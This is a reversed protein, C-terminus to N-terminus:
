RARHLHRGIPVAAGGLIYATDAMATCMTFGRAMATCDCVIYATGAPGAIGDRRSVIVRLNHVTVGGRSSAVPYAVTGVPGRFTDDAVDLIRAIRAISAVADRITQPYDAVTGIM